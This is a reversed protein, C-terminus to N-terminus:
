NIKFWEVTKKIGEDIPTFNFEGIYKMLKNNSVTKIIQGDSYNTDFVIREEYGFNKAIIRGIDAISVEDNEPVSLIINEKIDKELVMMILKALDESYIFQRLPKGSGRIVFDINNNKALFCRHILSPLVHGDELDFNDYSGYINTPIICYFNDNYNERYAKCQIDLFRKAYAYADNSNHPIGNHLDEESIPYKIIKDPFICTSLCGILKKVKYDHACKVVNYNIILNKELMAVKNNMNKFLGGVCAALHIVYNPKYDEYMKITEDIKELNYNKSSIFIFNYKNTYELDVSIKKIANGVLGSGGTVLITEM